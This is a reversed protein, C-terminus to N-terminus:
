GHSVEGNQAAPDSTEEEAEEDDDDEDPLCICVRKGCERCIPM